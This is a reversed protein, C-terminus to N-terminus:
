DPPSIPGAWESTKPASKVLEGDFQLEDQRILGMRAISEIEVVQAPFGRKHDRFWFWGSETPPANSWKM